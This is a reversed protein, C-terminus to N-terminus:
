RDEGRLGVKRDLAESMLESFREFLEQSNEIDRWGNRWLVLEDHLLAEVIIIEARLEVMNMSVAPTPQQKKM